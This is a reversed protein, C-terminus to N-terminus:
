GDSPRDPRGLVVPANTSLAHSTWRLRITILIARRTFLPHLRFRPTAALHCPYGKALQTNKTLLNRERFARYKFAILNSNTTHNLRTTKTPTRLSKESALLLLLSHSDNGSSLARQRRMEGTIGM